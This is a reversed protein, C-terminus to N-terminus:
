RALFGASGLIQQGEPSLVFEVFSAGTAANHGTSLVAIPYTAVLNNVDPISVAEVAPAAGGSAVDTVYVIGADAEGLAIKAVVAKVNPEDSASQVTVGAKTLVERAYKGAPVEPGCLLVRLDKRALDALSAIGKPNGKGVVLTLRNKAFTRPQMATLKAAVLKQMSPVDASAFVDVQAGDRVQLVLQPTGAFHLEIKTGPHSREFEQAIHEFPATLSAAAFVTTPLGAEAPKSCATLAALLVAALAPRVRATPGPTDIPM